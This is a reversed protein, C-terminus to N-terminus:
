STALEAKRKEIYGDADEGDDDSIDAATRQPTHSGRVAALPDPAAPTPKAPKAPTAATAAAAAPKASDGAPVAAASTSAQLAKFRTEGFMELFVEPSPARMLAEAEDPHQGLYYNMVPAKDPGLRLLARQLAVTGGSPVFVKQGDIERDEGVLKVKSCVEEYDAHQEIFSKESVGVTDFIEKTRTEQVKGQETAERKRENFAYRADTREDTYQTFDGDPNKEQWAEFTPFDFKGTAATGAAPPEAGTKGPAATKEPPKGGTLEQIKQNAADLQTRYGDREGEAKRRLSIEKLVKKTQRGIRARREGQTEIKKAPPPELKDIEDLVEADLGAAEDEKRGAARASQLEADTPEAPPQEDKKGAVVAATADITKQVEEVTQTATTVEIDDAITNAPENSNPM